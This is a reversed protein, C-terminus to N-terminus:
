ARALASLIAPWMGCVVGVAISQNLGICLYAWFHLSFMMFLHLSFHRSRRTNERHQNQKGVSLYVGSQPHLALDALWAHALPMIM